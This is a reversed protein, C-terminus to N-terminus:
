SQDLLEAFDSGIGVAILVDRRNASSSVVARPPGAERVTRVDAVPDFPVFPGAARKPRARLYGDDFMEKWAAARVQATRTLVGDLGFLCAHIGDPIGLM